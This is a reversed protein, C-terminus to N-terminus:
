SANGWPAAARFSAILDLWDELYRNLLFSRRVSERGNGGMRERTRPNQLLDIIRAAAEEVTKVLFGNEGDAIQHRIGGVSGGIVPTGKWM